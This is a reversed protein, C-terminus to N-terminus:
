WDRRMTVGGTVEGTETHPGLARTLAEGKKVVQTMQELFKSSSEIERGTTLVLSLLEELDTDDTVM